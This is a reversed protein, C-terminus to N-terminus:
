GESGEPGKAKPVHKFFTFDMRPTGTSNGSYFELGSDKGTKKFGVGVEVLDNDVEAWVRIAPQDHESNKAKEPNPNFEAVVPTTKGKAGLWGSLPFTKEGHTFPSDLLAGFDLSQNAGAVEINRKIHLVPPKGTLAEGTPILGNKTTAM